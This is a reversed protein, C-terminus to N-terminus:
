GSGILTATLDQMAILAFHNKYGVVFGMMDIPKGCIIVNKIIEQFWTPIIREPHSEL